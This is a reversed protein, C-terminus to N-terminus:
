SLEREIQDAFDRIVRERGASAPHARLDLERQKLRAEAIAVGLAGELRRIETEASEVVRNHAAVHRDCEGNLYGVEEQLTTVTNHRVLLGLSYFVVTCILLLWGESM